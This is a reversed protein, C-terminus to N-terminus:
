LPIYPDIYGETWRRYVRVPSDVRTDRDYIGM